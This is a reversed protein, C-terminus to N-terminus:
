LRDYKLNIAGKFRSNYKPNIYSTNHISAFRNRNGVPKTKYPPTVIYENILTYKILRHTYHNSSVDSMKSKLQRYKSSEYRTYKDSDYENACISCPSDYKTVKQGTHGCNHFYYKDTIRKKEVMKM